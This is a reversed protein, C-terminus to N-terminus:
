AASKLTRKQIPFSLDTGNSHQVQVSKEGFTIILFQGDNGYNLKLAMSGQITMALSGMQTLPSALEKLHQGDNQSSQFGPSSQSKQSQPDETFEETEEHDDLMQDLVSRTGAKPSKEETAEIAKATPHQPLHALTAELWPEDGGSGGNEDKPPEIPSEVGELPIDQSNQANVSKPAQPIPSIARASESANVEQSVQPIEPSQASSDSATKEMESQLQNIENMIKELDDSDVENEPLHNDTAM